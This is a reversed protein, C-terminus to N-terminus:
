ISIITQFNKTRELFFRTSSNNYLSLVLFLIYDLQYMLCNNPSDNHSYYIRIIIHKLSFVLLCKQKVQATCVLKEPDILATSDLPNFPQDLPKGDIIVVLMLLVVAISMQFIILNANIIKNSFIDNLNFFFIYLFPNLFHIKSIKSRIM